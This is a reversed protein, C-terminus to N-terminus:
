DHDVQAEIDMSASKDKKYDDSFLNKRREKPDEEINESGEENKKGEFVERLLDLNHRQMKATQNRSQLDEESMKQRKKILFTDM